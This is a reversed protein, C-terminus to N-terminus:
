CKMCETTVRTSPVALPRLLARPAPSPVASGRQQLPHKLWPGQNDVASNINFYNHNLPQSMNNEVGARFPAAPLETDGSIPATIRAAWAPRTHFPAGSRRAQLPQLGPKM